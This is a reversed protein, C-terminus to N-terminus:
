LMQDILKKLEEFLDEEPVTKLVAGKSFLVGRGGGGAIGADAEKAEGPGNVACGMVAIKMPKSINETYAAIKEALKEIDLSCRACTPCSIIEVGERRAGCFLLIKKAVGIERVPDGTVSVRITDGIGDLVLAGLGIASKVSADFYTGAETVGLHLPYDIMKSIMQNADRCVRADSSKLSVVIKDFGTEGLIEVNRMAGAVLAQAPNKYQKLIDKPLSGANAGVRIPVNHDSAARVVETIEKRGGINGPNIRVKDVGSRIAALAIKHDFHVDAVLPISIEKKIKPIALACEMDYVALRVIECGAAQLLRIQRVTAKIDKTDTNTMSQVAIPNGAGIRVKGIAIERTYDAM